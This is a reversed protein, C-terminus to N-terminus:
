IFYEPYKNKAFNIAKDNGDWPWNLLDSMYVHRKDDTLYYLENEKYYLTDKYVNIFISTFSDIGHEDVRINFLKNKRELYIFSNKKLTNNM